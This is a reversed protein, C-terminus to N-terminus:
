LAREAGSRTLVRAASLAGNAATWEARVLSIGTRSVSAVWAREPNVALMVLNERDHAGYPTGSM